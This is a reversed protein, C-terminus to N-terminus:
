GLCACTCAKSVMPWNRCLFCCCICPSEALFMGRCGCDVHRGFPPLEAVATMLSTSMCFWGNCLLGGPCCVGQDIAGPLQLLNECFLCCRNSVFQCADACVCADNSCHGIEFTQRESSCADLLQKRGLATETWPGAAAAHM